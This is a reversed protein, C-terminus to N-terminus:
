KVISILGVLHYIVSANVSDVTALITAGGTVSIVLGLHTLFFHEDENFPYKARLLFLKDRSDNLPIIVDLLMPVTPVLTFGITVNVM